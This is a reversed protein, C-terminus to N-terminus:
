GSLNGGSRSGTMELWAEGRISGEKDQYNIPIRHNAHTNGLTDKYIVIHMDKFANTGILKVMEHDTTLLLGNVMDFAHVMETDPPSRHM